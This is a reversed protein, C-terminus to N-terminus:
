ECTWWVRVCRSPWGGGSGCTKSPRRETSTVRRRGRKRSRRRTGEDGRSAPQVEAGSRIRAAAWAAQGAFGDDMEDCIRACRDREAAVAAALRARAEDRQKALAMFAEDRQHVSEYREGTMAAGFALTAKHLRTISENFQETTCATMRMMKAHEAVSILRDRAAVQESTM